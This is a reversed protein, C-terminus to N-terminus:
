AQDTPQQLGAHTALVCALVRLQAIASSQKQCWGHLLRVYGLQLAGHICAPIGAQLIGHIDGKIRQLGNWGIAM